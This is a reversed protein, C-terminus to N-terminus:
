KYIDSNLNLRRDHWLDILSGSIRKRKAITNAMDQSSIRMALIHKNYNFYTYVDDPNDFIYIKGGFGEIRERKLNIAICSGIHDAVNHQHILLAQGSMDLNIEKGHVNYIGTIQQHIIDVAVAATADIPAQAFEHASLFPENSKPTYTIVVEEPTKLIREVDKHDLSKFPLFFEHHKKHQKIINATKHPIQRALHEVEKRRMITEGTTFEHLVRLFDTLRM